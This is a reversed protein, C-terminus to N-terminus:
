ISARNRTWNKTWGFALVGNHSVRNSLTQGFIEMTQLSDGMIVWSGNNRAKVPVHQTFLQGSIHRGGQPM